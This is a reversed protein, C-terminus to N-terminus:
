TVLTLFQAQNIGRSYQHYRLGHHWATSLFIFSCGHHAFFVPELLDFMSVWSEESM